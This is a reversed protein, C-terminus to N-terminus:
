CKGIRPRYDSKEGSETNTSGVWLWRDARHFILRKDNQTRQLVVLQHRLAIIEAQPAAHIRISGLLSSLMMLILSLMASSPECNFGVVEITEIRIFEEVLVTL